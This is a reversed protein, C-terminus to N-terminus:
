RFHSGHNFSDDSMARSHLHIAIVNIRMTMDIDNATHEVFTKGVVIGANNFLIHLAGYTQEGFAIMQECDTAKSVDAHFFAAEGGGDKIQKVTNQGKDVNIDVVMIKAGEEAFLLATAEGIGSSAGTIVAVKNELRM